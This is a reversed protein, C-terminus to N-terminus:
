LPLKMLAANCKCVSFFRSCVFHLCAFDDLLSPREWHAASKWKEGTQSPLQCLGQIVTIDHLEVIFRKLAIWSYNAWCGEVSWFIQIPKRGSTQMQFTQCFNWRGPSNWIAANQRSHFISLPAHHRKSTAGTTMTSDRYASWSWSLYTWEICSHSRSHFHTQTWAIITSPNGVM